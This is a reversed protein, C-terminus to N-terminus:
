IKLLVVDRNEQMCSAYANLTYFVNSLSVSSDTVRAIIRCPRGFDNMGALERNSFNSLLLSKRSPILSSTGAHLM